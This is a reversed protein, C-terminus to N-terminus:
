VFVNIGAKESALIRLGHQRRFEADSKYQPSKVAAMMDIKSKYPEVGSTANPATTTTKKGDSGLSQQYRTNLETVAKKMSKANTVRSDFDDQEEQSLNTAAWQLLQQYGQQGGTLAYAEGFTAQETARVGAIYTDVTEKTHGLKALAEYTAPTLEGKDAYENRAAVVPDAAETQQTTNAAADGPKPAQQSQSGQKTELNTYSKALAEQNVAGAEANWFKEPCWEPRQPKNQTASAPAAPEAGVTVVQTVPKTTTTGDANLQTTTQTM